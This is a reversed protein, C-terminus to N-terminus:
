SDNFITEFVCESLNTRVEFDENPSCLSGLNVAVIFMGEVLDTASETRTDVYKVLWFRLYIHGSRHQRQRDYSHHRTECPAYATYADNFTRDITTARTARPRARLAGNGDDYHIRSRTSNYHVIVSMFLDILIMM